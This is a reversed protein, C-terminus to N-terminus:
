GDLGGEHWERVNRVLRKINTKPLGLEDALRQTSEGRENREYLRQAQVTPVLSFDKTRYRRYMNKIVFEFGSRPRGRNSKM